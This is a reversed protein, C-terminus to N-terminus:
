IFITIVAEFSSKSNFTNSISNTANALPQTLNLIYSSVGNTFEAKNCIQNIKKQDLALNRIM